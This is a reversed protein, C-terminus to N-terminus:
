VMSITITGILRSRATGSFMVAKKGFCDECDLVCSSNQIDCERIM